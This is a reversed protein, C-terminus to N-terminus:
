KMTQHRAHLYKMDGNFIKPHNHIRSTILVKTHILHRRSGHPSARPPHILYIMVHGPGLAFWGVGEGGEWGGHVHWCCAPCACVHVCPWLGACWWLRGVFEQLLVEVSRM